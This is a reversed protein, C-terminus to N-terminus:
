IFMDKIKERIFNQFKSLKLVELCKAPDKYSGIELKRV